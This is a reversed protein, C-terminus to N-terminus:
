AQQAYYILSATGFGGAATAYLGNFSGSWPILAPVMGPFIAAIQNGGTSGTAVLLVSSSNVTIDNKIQVFAVNSLAGLSLQTWALSTVTTNQQIANSSSVTYANSQNIGYTANDITASANSGLNINYAM